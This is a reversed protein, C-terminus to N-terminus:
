TSADAEVRRRLVAMFTALADARGSEGLYGEGRPRSSAFGLRTWLMAPWVGCMARRMSARQARSINALITHLRPLDTEHVRLSCSDWPVVEEFPRAEDALSFVPICGYLLAPLFRDSDGENTGLPSLCFESDAM